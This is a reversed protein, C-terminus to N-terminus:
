RLTNHRRFWRSQFGRINHPRLAAKQVPCRRIMPSQTTHTAKGPPARPGGGCFGAATWGARHHPSKEPAVKTGHNTHEREGRSRHVCALHDTGGGGGGRSVYQGMTRRRSLQQNGDSVHTWAVAPPGRLALRRSLTTHRARSRLGRGSEESAALFTRLRRANADNGRPKRQRGDRSVAQTPQHARCLLDRRTTRSRRAPGRCTKSLYSSRFSPSSWPISAFFTPSERHGLLYSGSRAAFQQLPAWPTHPSPRSFTPFTLTPKRRASPFTPNQKESSRIGNLFVGSVRKRSGALTCHSRKPSRWTGGLRSHQVPQNFNRRGGSPSLRTALAHLHGPGPPNVLSVTPIIGPPRVTIRTEPTEM